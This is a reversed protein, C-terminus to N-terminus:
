QEQGPLAVLGHERLLKWQMITLIELQEFM